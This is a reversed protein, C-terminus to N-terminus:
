IKDILHSTLVYPCYAHSGAQRRWQNDLMRLFPKTLTKRVRPKSSSFVRWGFFTEERTQSELRWWYQVVDKRGLKWKSRSWDIRESKTAAPSITRWGGLSKKKRKKLQPFIRMVAVAVGNVSPGHIRTVLSLSSSGPAALLELPGIKQWPTSYLSLHPFSSPSSSIFYFFLPVMRKRNDNRNPHRWGVPREQLPTGTEM